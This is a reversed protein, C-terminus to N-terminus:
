GLPLKADTYDPRLKIAQSYREVADAFRNKDLFVNRLGAFGRADDPAVSAAQKYLQEAETYSPTAASRAANGNAIMQDEAKALSRLGPREAVRGGGDSSLGAGKAHLPPNEPKRYILAAGGLIDSSFKGGGASDQAQLVPGGALVLTAAITCLRSKFYLRHM